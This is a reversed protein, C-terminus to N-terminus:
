QQSQVYKVGQELAEITLKSCTFASKTWRKYVGFQHLLQCKQHGGSSEICNCRWRRAGGICCFLTKVWVTKISESRGIWRTLSLNKMNLEEKLNDIKEKVQRFRSTNKTLFYCLSQLTTFITKIMFTDRLADVCINSNHNMCAPYLISKNM